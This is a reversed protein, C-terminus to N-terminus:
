RLRESSRNRAFTRQLWREQRTAQTSALEAPFRTTAPSKKCPHLRRINEATPWAAMWVASALKTSALGPTQAPFRARLVFGPRNPNCLDTSCPSKTRLGIAFAAHCPDLGQHGQPPMSAAPSHIQDVPSPVSGKPAQCDRTELSCREHRHDSWKETENPMTM